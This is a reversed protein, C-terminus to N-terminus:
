SVTRLPIALNTGSIRAIMISIRDSCPIVRLPSNSDFFSPSTNEPGSSAYPQYHAVSQRKAKGTCSHRLRCDARRASRPRSPGRPRLTEGSRWGTRSAPRRGRGPSRASRCTTDCRRSSAATASGPPTRLERRRRLNSDQEGRVDHPEVHLTARPRRHRRVGPDLDLDAAVVVALQRRHLWSWRSGCSM